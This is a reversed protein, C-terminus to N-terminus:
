KVRYALPIFIVQFPTAVKKPENGLHYYYTHQTDWSPNDVKRSEGAPVEVMKSVIQSHLMRGQMDLYNIKVEFGLLEQSTPNVVIFSERSSNPEKDYGAFTVHRLEDYVKRDIEACVSDSMLVEIGTLNETKQSKTAEKEVKLSSKIKRASVPQLCNLLFTFTLFLIIQIPKM